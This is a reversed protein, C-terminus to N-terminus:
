GGQRRESFDQISSWDPFAKRLGMPIAFGIRGDPFFSRNLRVLSFVTECLDAVDSVHLKTRRIWWELESFYGFKRCVLPSEGARKWFVSGPVLTFWQLFVSIGYQLILEEAFQITRKCESIREWPFGIIFSFVFREPNGYSSLVRAAGLITETTIGKGTRALGEDYGCEAGVLLNAIFPNLTKFLEPSKTIDAARGDLTLLANSENASLLAGLELLRDADVTTCDDTLSIKGTKTKGALSELSRMSSAVREASRARWSRKHPIACFRCASACGRATEMPMSQFQDPGRLLEWAPEPTHEFVERTIKLPAKKCSNPCRRSIVGPLSPECVGRSIAQLLPVIIEEAEGRVLFDYYGESLVAEPYLTPHPGGAIIVVSEHSQRIWRAVSSAAAWNMSNGSIGVVHFDVCANLVTEESWHDVTVLDLVSVHFHPKIIAALLYVGLHPNNKFSDMYARVHRGNFEEVVPSSVLLVKLDKMQGCDRRVHISRAPVVGTRFPSAAIL